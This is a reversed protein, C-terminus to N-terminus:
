GKSRFGDKLETGRLETNMIMQDYTSVPFNEYGSIEGKQPYYVTVGNMDYEVLENTDYDKQNVYYPETLNQKIFVMDDTFYHEWYSSGMFFMLVVIAGSVIQYFSSEKRHLWMGVAIMPTALLFALGYRIFPALFFWAVSCCLVVVNLLIVNPNIKKKKRIYHLLIVIDLCVALINCYILMQAYREQSSWWISIWEKLPMDALTIDYLCKAWVKIQTSDVIVFEEPLKWDVNFLDIAPFPYLLWGSIIVNRILFPLITVIGLLLYVAIDKYKKEKILYIAPYIVLLVLLGASLKLTCIFVALVCLLAYTSINNKGSDIEEAWRAILYLAFFMTVYDSAPSMFGTFNILAYFLIAICCMDTVHQKHMYFDKIYYFAWLCLVVAIYSTTCHFSQFGLFGLSFLAAFGFSSSNYGFHWQFNALGKVVGFEEYWRIAQAHYLNTDAHFKGRSAAFAFLLLVGLYLFGEWSVIVKRSRKFYEWLLKKNFYIIIVCLVLLILNALLGVKYFLSFFQAYITTVVIGCVTNRIMNLEINEKMLYNICKYFGIGIIQTVFFIYIWNLLVVLM